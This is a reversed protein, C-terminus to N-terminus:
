GAKRSTRIEFCSKCKTKEGQIYGVKCDSCWGDKEKAVACTPCAQQALADSAFLGLLLTLAVLFYAAKM